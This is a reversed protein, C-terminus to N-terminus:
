SVSCLGWSCFCLHRPWGALHCIYDPLCAVSESLTHRQGPRLTLHEIGDCAAAGGRKTSMAILAGATAMLGDGIIRAAVPVTGLALGVSAILPKAFTLLFQQRHVVIVQDEAHRMRQRRQHPLVLPPEEGQQELGTCCGQQFYGGM